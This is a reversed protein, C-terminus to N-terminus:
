LAAEPTGCLNRLLPRAHHTGPQLVHNTFPKLARAAARNLLELRHLTRGDNNVKVGLDNRIPHPFTELWLLGQFDGPGNAGRKDANALYASDFYRELANLFGPLDGRARRNGSAWHQGSNILVAWPSPEQANASFLPNQALFEDCSVCAFFGDLMAGYGGRARLDATKVCTAVDNAGKHAILPVNVLRWMFQNFLGRMQSDGRFNMSRNSLCTRAADTADPLRCAFPLFFLGDAIDTHYRVVENTLVQADPPVSVPLALPRALVTLGAEVTRQVWRGAPVADCAPRHAGALVAAHAAAGARADGLALTVGDGLPREFVPRAFAGLSDDLAAWGARVALIFLRYAGPITVSFPFTYICDGAHRGRLSLFEPGELLVWLEDPGLEFADALTEPPAGAAVPPPACKTGGSSGPACAAAANAPCGIIRRLRLVGSCGFGGLGVPAACYAARGGSLPLDWDSPPASANSGSDPAACISAEWARRVEAGSLNAPPAPPGTWGKVCGRERGWCPDSPEWTSPWFTVASPPPHLPACEPAAAATLSPTPTQSPALSPMAPSLPLKPASSLQPARLPLTRAPSHVPPLAPTSLRAATLPVVPALLSAVAVLILLVIVGQIYDRAALPPATADVEPTHRTARSVRLM